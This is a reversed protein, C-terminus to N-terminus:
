YNHSRPGSHLGPLQLAQAYSSRQTHFRGPGPISGVDGANAPPNEDMTGAPLDLLFRQVLWRKQKKTLKDTGMGTFCIKM